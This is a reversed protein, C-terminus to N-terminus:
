LRFTLRQLSLNESWLSHSVHNIQRAAITLLQLLFLMQISCTCYMAPAFQIFHLSVYPNIRDIRHAKLVAALCAASSSRLRDRDYTANVDPLPAKERETDETPM